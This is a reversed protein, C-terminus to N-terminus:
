DTDRLMIPKTELEVRLVDDMGDRRIQVESGKERSTSLLFLAECFVFSGRPIHCGHYYLNKSDSSSLM